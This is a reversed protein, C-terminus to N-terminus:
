VGELKWEEWRRCRRRRRCRRESLKVCVMSGEVTVASSFFTLARERKLPRISAGRLWRQNVTGGQEKSLCLVIVGAFAEHSDQIQDLLEFLHFSTESSGKRYREENRGIREEVGPVTRVSEKQRGRM